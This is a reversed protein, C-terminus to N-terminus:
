GEPEPEPGRCPAAREKILTVVRICPFLSCAGHGAMNKLAKCTIKQNPFCSFTRIHASTQPGIAGNPNRSKDEQGRM